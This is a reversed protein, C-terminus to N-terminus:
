KEIGRRAPVGAKYYHKIEKMETVLDAAEVLRPNANRGTIVLELHEPKTRIIELIENVTILGYTIAVNAEDLVILDYAESQIARSVEAFGMRAATRDEETPRSEVFHGTGFYRLTIRDPFRRLSQVESYRGCKLFQVFLVRLGAGAARVALGIASTTKGKGRGTYVHVYGRETTDSVDPQDGSEAELVRDIITDVLGDHVGLPETITIDLEPFKKKLERTARPIDSVIHGGRGLFYPHLVIRRIGSAALAALATEMDPAGHRLFAHAVRYGPMRSALRSSIEPLDVNGAPIPSGHGVILVAKM